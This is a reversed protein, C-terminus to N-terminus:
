RLRPGRQRLDQLVNEAEEKMLSIQDDSLTTNIGNEWIDWTGFLVLAMLPNGRFDIPKLDALCSTDPKSLPDKMYDLAIQMGCHPAFLNKVPSGFMVVHGTNPIEVFYQNPGNLNEEAKRAEDITTRPDLTGNLMLIPVDQSAWKHYYEDTEYTPWGEELLPLGWNAVVHDTALLTEDLEKAKDASMPNNGILESLGIHFFLADSYSGAPPPTFHNYYIDWMHKLANVDEESCRDLRYYVAPVVIRYAPSNIDTAISQLIEPTIGDEVVQPCHGDDKFKEFTDTAKGWPDEGMKSKCFDDEKCIDFFDKVVDNGNIDGQDGQVDSPVVSDLIVGDAQDPFIQAYRHGLYTGYSVGYVFKKKNGEKLLEVLFGVDKAAQTVTFADLNYNAELHEICADGESPTIWSGKESEDTEQEPCSLRTSYGTGRHDLTYLDIRWDLRAISKMFRPLDSTGAYGPGGDLLWVQKTAKLLSKLRKVHITINEGKPNEWYLPVTIDACEAKRLRKQNEFLECKEWQVTQSLFEEPFEIEAGFVNNEYTGDSVLVFLSISFFIVLANFIFKKM